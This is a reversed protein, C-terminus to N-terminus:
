CFRKNSFTTFYTLTSLLFVLVVEIVDKKENSDEELKGFFSVKLGKSPFKWSRTQKRTHSTKTLM